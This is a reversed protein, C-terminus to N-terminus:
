FNKKMETYSITKRNGNELKENWCKECIFYEQGTDDDKFIIWVEESGCETCKM